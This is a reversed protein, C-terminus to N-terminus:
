ESPAPAFLYGSAQDVAWASTDTTPEVSLHQLVLKRSGSESSGEQRPDSAPVGFTIQSPAVDLTRPPRAESSAPAWEDRLASLHERLSITDRKESRQETGPSVLILSGGEVRLQYRGESSGSHVEVHYLRGKGPVSIPGEHRFRTPLGHERDPASALGVAERAEAMSTPVSQSSEILPRFAEGGFHTFLYRARRHPDSRRFRSPRRESARTISDSPAGEVDRIEERLHAIQSRETVSLAGWPGVAGLLALLAFVAPLGAASYTSERVTKWTAWGFCLAIGAVALMRVYRFETWGHQQVRVWIAWAPM